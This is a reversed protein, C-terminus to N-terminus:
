YLIRLIDARSDAGIKQLLSSQHHKVTRVAIGLAAAIEDISRGQVLSVFIERERVSLRAREAVQDLRAEHIMTVEGESVTRTRVSTTTATTRTATTVEFTNGAAGEKARGLRVRKRPWDGDPKLVPCDACPKDTGYLLAFCTTKDAGCPVPEGNRTLRLLAGFESGGSAIEYDLDGGAPATSTPPTSLERSDLVAV